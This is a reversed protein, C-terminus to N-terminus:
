LAAQEASSQESESSRHAPSADSKTLKALAEEVSWVSLPKEVFQIRTGSPDGFAAGLRSHNLVGVCVLTLEPFQSLLQACTAAAQSGLGDADVMVVNWRGAERRLVDMTQRADFVGRSVYGLSELVSSVFPQVGSEMGLLLVGQGRASALNSSSGAEAFAGQASFIPIYVSLIAGEGPVSYVTILGDHQRVLSYATSLGLGSGNLGVGTGQDVNKTTFFPEFCRAQQEPTMGIGNDKVDIRIYPGPSVDPALEGSRVRVTSMSISIAGSPNSGIADKANALLNTLVQQMQSVDALVAASETTGADISFSIKKGVLSRYLDESDSIMRALSIPKKTSSGNTAFSLLQSVLSAGRKAAETITEACEFVPSGKPTQMEILTVQGLIAQLLNNFNHAVGSALLGATRMRLAESMKHEFRGALMVTGIENAMSVLLRIREPSVFTTKSLPEVVLIGLVQGVAVMPVAVLRDAHLVARLLREDRYGSLDNIIAPRQSAIVKHLLKESSSVEIQLDQAVDDASGGFGARGLLFTGQENLVGLWGQKLAFEEKLIPFIREAFDHASRYKALERSVSYLSRLSASQQKQVDFMEAQRIALSIQAAAATALDFDEEAYAFADRKFLCFAGCVENDVIMPAIICARQREKKALDRNARPDVQLDDILLPSKSTVSVRLLSPGNLIPEMSDLYQESLGVAAVTELTDRERDYLCAYGCDSQTAGVIARLGKFTVAAPDAYGHLARAVEFLAELRRNQEVLRDQAYRRDTVDVGFGEWGLFVGEVSFQPLARLMIWRLKGTKQHVVRVEERLESRDRRLKTIRRRLTPIDRPDLIREWLAVDGRMSQPNVGLLAETNGFVDTVRFQKDTTIIVINGHNALRQYQSRLGKALSSSSTKPVSDGSPSIVSTLASVADIEKATFRHFARLYLCAVVAVTGGDRKLPFLGFSRVGHASLAPILNGALRARQLDHVVLPVALKVDNHFVGSSRISFLDEIVSKKELRARGYRAAAIGAGEVPIIYVEDCQLGLAVAQAVGEVRTAAREWISSDFYSELKSNDHAESGM